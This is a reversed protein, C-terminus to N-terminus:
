PSHPLGYSTGKVSQGDIRVLKTPRWSVKKASCSIREKDFANSLM